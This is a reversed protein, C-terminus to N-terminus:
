KAYCVTVTKLAAKHTAGRKLTYDACRRHLAPGDGQYGPSVTVGLAQGDASM